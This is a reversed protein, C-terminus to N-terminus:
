ASSMTATAISTMLRYKVIRHVFMSINWVTGLGQFLFAGAIWPVVCTRTTTRPIRWSRSPRRPSSRSSSGSSAWAPAPLVHLGPLLHDQCGPEQSPRLRVPSVGARLRPARPLPDGRHPVRARLHGGRRGLRLDEPLLPRVPPDRLEPARRSRAGVRLGPSGQRRPKSFRLSLGRVMAPFLYLCILVEAVLQSLLVGRGGLHLGVVFIIALVLAVITQAVTSCPTAARNSARACSPRRCGCCRRSRWAASASRSGCARLGSQRRPAVVPAEVPRAGAPRDPLSLTSSSGSRPPSSRRAREGRDDHRFYTRFLASSQGMNM